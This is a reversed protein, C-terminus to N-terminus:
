ATKARPSQKIRSLRASKVARLIRKRELLGARALPLPRHDAAPTVIRGGGAPSLRSSIDRREVNLTCRLTPLGPANRRVGQPARLQASNAQGRLSSFAQDPQTRRVERAPFHYKTRPTGKLWFPTAPSKAAPTELGAVGALRTGHNSVRKKKEHARSLLAFPKVPEACETPGGSKVQTRKIRASKM